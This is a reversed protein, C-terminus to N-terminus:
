MIMNARMRAIDNKCASSMNVLGAFIFQCRALFQLESLRAMVVPPLGRSESKLRHFLECLCEVTASLVIPFQEKLIPDLDRFKSSKETLDERSLALLGTRSVIGFAEEFKRQRYVIYFSRLKLLSRNTDILNLKGEREISDVVNTRKSLYSDYFLESQNMWYIKDDDSVNIPTIQQNLLQVLKSHRYGLMYLNATREAKGRDSAQKKFLEAATVLIM